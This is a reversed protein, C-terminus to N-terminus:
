NNKIVVPLYTSYSIIQILQFHATVTVNQTIALTAPNASGTLGGSWDIFEYGSAPNATLEVQTGEAYVGGPPNLSVTGGGLPDVLVTLTYTPVVVGTPTFVATLAYNDLMIITETATTSGDIPAGQWYDFLWGANFPNASLTVSTGHEYYELDPDVSVSGSGIPSVDVSLTYTIPIAALTLTHSVSDTGCDSSAWLTVTYSGASAYVHVPHTETSTNGDGLDWLYSDANISTNTFSVTYQDVAYGFGATPLPLVEVVDQYTDCLGYPAPSCATLTVSYFGTAGYAHSPHELTSTVGDGFEWQFLSAPPVGGSTTNTFVMPVGPCAPSDSTFSATPTIYNEVIHMTVPLMPTEAVPDNSSVVLTASYAGLPMPTVWDTYYTTFAIEANSTGLVYDSGVTGSVPEEWLWPVDGAPLWNNYYHPIMNELILGASQGNGWGFEFTQGGAVLIGAGHEREIMVVNGGPTTGQTVLIRDRPLLNSMYNHSASSGSYPNPVGAMIPHTPDQIYNEVATGYNNTGGFPPQIYPTHGSQTCFSMLVVGGADIFSEFQALNSNFNTNYASGQVSPIAIMKYASFNTSPIQSSNIVDYPIGNATMIAAWADYGWALSDQILLVGTGLIQSAPTPATGLGNVEITTNSSSPGKPLSLNPRISRVGLTPTLYGRDVEIFEYELEQGGNNTIDLGTPHTYVLTGTILWVEFSDPEVSICARDPLLDVDLTTTLGAMVDVTYTDTLYGDASFEIGYTDSVLWATYYGDPYTHTQTIPVGGTIYLTAEVPEGTCRDLVYGEVKGMDAPPLVTMRVPTKLDPDGYMLLDAYYEGPQDVGAAYTASFLLTAGLTSDAPVTGSVPQEGLWPVSRGMPVTEYRGFGQGAEGRVFYIGSVGGFGVHAMGGDDVSWFPITTVSWTENEIDFMYWNNGGYDGYAFYTPGLPDIAGSLTAGGPLDPLTTWVDSFIDYKAFESSGDGRHVYLQGDYYGMGGWPEVGFSPAALPTWTGSGPDYRQFGSGVALYVYQGDSAMAGGGAGLPSVMTTWSDGTIDYMGMTGYDTYSTYIVGDLYAAGGNNGSTQPSSALQTWVDTWPDYVYFNTGQDQQAYVYGTNPDSTVCTLNVPPPSLLSFDGVDMLRALPMFGKDVEFFEFEYGALLRNTLTAPLSASTQWDLTVHVSHPDLALSYALVFDQQTQQASIIDVTAMGTLYDPALAKLDYTGADVYIEYYGTDPDSTTSGYGSIVIAAKLPLGTDYDTIYGYLRGRATLTWDVTTLSGTLIEVNPQSATAYWPHQATATYVGAPITMTYYGSADTHASAGASVTAGEIPNLTAADYVHGDMYGYTWDYHTYYVEYNGDRSDCWVTHMRHNDDIALYPMTWYTSPYATGGVTLPYNDLIFGGNNDLASYHINDTDDEEWTVHLIRGDVAVVPHRSKVGDDPTLPTDAIVTIADGDAPSGDQDDLSPDLKTYWIEKNAGSDDQWVIHVKDDADVVLSSWKSYESDDPTLRTADILINGLNDLMMYYVEDYDTVKYDAWTLHLNDNSDVAIYPTARWQSAYRLVTEPVLENGDADIKKYYIGDTDDNDWVIHIDDNSDVAARIGFMYWSNNHSMRSDDVLTITSSIAPSGDMDDLYPDLKTYTVEQHSGSDWRQDRWLIHVKNESDVLIAPRTSEYGDDATLRTDDILTHGENDLMTYWLERESTTYEDTYAIHVNGNADIAVDPQDARTASHTIRRHRVNLSVSASETFQGDTAEYVFSDLGEFGPTPTYVFGGDLALSLSGNVPPTLLTATLVDGNPDYDNGLVGPAPVSLVSDIVVDYIDDALVPPEPIATVTISVTARDASPIGLMIEQVEPQTLPQNYIRVDDILGPFCDVTGFTNGIHLPGSGQYDAGATDSIVPLGDRYITRLNSVADYTCAWHHWNNDSYPQPTDLDDGWFACTFYALGALDRFGFHLNHYNGGPPTGQTLIYRNGGAPNRRAWAAVSFSQNALDIGTAQVDSSGNVGDFELSLGAGLTIPVTTSFAVTGSLVADYGNGSVDATPNTGDDFPWHAVAPFDGDAALYTFTDVGSFNLTPTYVFSGDPNLSLDGNSPPGDLLAILPDNEPDSDNALVGPADVILPTNEDTTYADDNAVPPLATVSAALCLLVAVALTVAVVPIRKRDLLQPM